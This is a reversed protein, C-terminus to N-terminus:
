KARIICVPISTPIELYPRSAFRNITTKITIRKMGLLYLCDRLLWSQRLETTPKSDHPSDLAPISLLCVGHVCECLKIRVFPYQIIPIVNKKSYSDTPTIVGNRAWTSKSFFISQRSPEVWISGNHFIEEKKRRWRTSLMVWKSISVDNCPTSTLVTSLNWPRSMSTTMNDVTLNSDALDWVSIALPPSWPSSRTPWRRRSQLRILTAIVLYTSCLKCQSFSYNFSYPKIWPSLLAWWERIM